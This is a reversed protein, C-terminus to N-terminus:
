ICLKSNKQSDMKPVIIESRQPIHNDPPMSPNPTNDVLMDDRLEENETRLTTNEQSLMKITETMSRLKQMLEKNLSPRSALGNLSGSSTRYPSGPGVNSLDGNCHGSTSISRTLQFVVCRIFNASHCFWLSLSAGCSGAAVRNVCWFSGKQASHRKNRFVFCFSIVKTWNFQQMLLMFAAGVPSTDRARICPSSKDIMAMMMMMM